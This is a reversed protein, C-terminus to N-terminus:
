EASAIMRIHRNKELLCHGASLIELNDLKIIKLDIKLNLIQINIRLGARGCVKL